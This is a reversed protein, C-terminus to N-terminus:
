KEVKEVWGQMHGIPRKAARRIGGMGWKETGIGQSTPSSGTERLVAREPCSGLNEGLVRLDSSMSFVGQAVSQAPIHHTNLLEGAPNNVVGRIGGRPLDDERSKM